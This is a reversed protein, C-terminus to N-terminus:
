GTLGEGPEATGQFVLRPMLHADLKPEAGVRATLLPRLAGQMGALFGEVDLGLHHPLYAALCRRHGQYLKRAGAANGSQWHHLCIAAQILGKYFDADPGETAEWLEDLVEHAALYSGRNWLEAVARLAPDAASAM